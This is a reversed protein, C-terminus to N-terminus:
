DLLYSKDINGSGRAVAQAACGPLANLNEELYKAKEPDNACKEIFASSVSVTTPVGEMSTSKNFYSFKGQLYKTYEATTTSKSKTDDAKKNSVASETQTEKDTSKKRSEGVNESKKAAKEVANSTYYSTYSSVGSISM